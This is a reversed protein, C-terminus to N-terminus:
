EKPKAERNMNTWEMPCGCYHKTHGDNAGYCNHKVGDKDIGVSKCPGKSVPM